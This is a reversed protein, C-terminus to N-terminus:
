EEEADGNREYQPMEEIHGIITTLERDHGGQFNNNIQFYPRRHYPCDPAYLEFYFGEIDVPCGTDMVRSCEGHRVIFTNKVGEEPPGLVEVIDGETLRRGEKDKLYSSIRYFRFRFMANTAETYVGDKLDTTPVLLISAVTAWDKNRKDWVRYNM